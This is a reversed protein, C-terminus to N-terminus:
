DDNLITLTGVNRGLTPGGTPNTLTLTITENGEAVVDPFVPIIVAKQWQGASLSITKTVPFVANASGFKFDAPPTADVPTLTVQVTVPVTAPQSLTIWVKANNTATVKIGQNGELIAADGIAFQPTASAPDDDLVTGVGTARALAVGVPNSLVVRFTEDGEDAADPYVLANVYRTTTSLGTTASPKFTLTGSRTRFDGGSGPM